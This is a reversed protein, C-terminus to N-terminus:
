PEFNSIVAGKLYTGGGGRSFSLNQLNELVQILETSDRLVTAM